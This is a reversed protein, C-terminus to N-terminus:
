CYKECFNKSKGRKVEEEKIKNTVKLINRFISFWNLILNRPKLNKTRPDTELTRKSSVFLSVEKQVMKM